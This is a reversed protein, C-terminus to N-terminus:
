SYILRQRKKTSSSKRWYELSGAKKNKQTEDRLTASKYLDIYGFQENNQLDKTILLKCFVRFYFDVMTETLGM